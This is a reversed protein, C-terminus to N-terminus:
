KKLQKLHFCIFPVLNPVTWEKDAYDIPSAAIQEGFKRQILINHAKKLVLLSIEMTTNQEINQNNM